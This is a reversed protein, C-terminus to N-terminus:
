SRVRRSIERGLEDLKGRMESDQASDLQGGSSIRMSQEMRLLDNLRRSLHEFDGAYIKGTTKANNLMAQMDQFVTSIAPKAAEPAGQQYIIVPPAYGYNGGAWPYYYGSPARWFRMQMGGNNIGYYNGALPVPQGAFHYGYPNYPYTPTFQGGYVPRNPLFGGGPGFTMYGNGQTSGPVWNSPRPNAQTNGPVWGPPTPSGQTSGQPNSLSRGWNPDFGYQALAATAQTSLLILLIFLVRQM